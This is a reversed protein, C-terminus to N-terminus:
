GVIETIATIDYGQLQAWIYLEEQKNRTNCQVPTWANSLPVWTHENGLIPTLAKGMLSGFINNHENSIAHNNSKECVLFFM